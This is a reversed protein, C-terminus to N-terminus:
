GPQDSKNQKDAQTAEDSGDPKDPTHGGVLSAGRLLRSAQM